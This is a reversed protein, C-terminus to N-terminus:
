AQARISSLTRKPQYAVGHVIRPTSLREMLLENIALDCTDDNIPKFGTIGLLAKSDVEV